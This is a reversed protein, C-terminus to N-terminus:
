WFNIAKRVIYLLIKALEVKLNCKGLLNQNEQSTFVLPFIVGFNIFWVHIKIQYKLTSSNFDVKVPVVRKRKQEILPYDSLLNM